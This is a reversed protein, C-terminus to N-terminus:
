FRQERKHPGHKCHGGGGAGDPALKRLGVMVVNVGRVVCTSM